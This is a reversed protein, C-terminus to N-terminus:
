WYTSTGRPYILCAHTTVAPAYQSSRRSPGGARSSLACARDRTVVGRMRVPHTAPDDHFPPTEEGAQAAFKGFASVSVCCM